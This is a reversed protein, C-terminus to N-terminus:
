KKAFSKYYGESRIYNCDLFSQKGWRIGRSLVGQFKPRGIFRRFSNSSNRDGFMVKVELVRALYGLTKSHLSNVIIAQSISSLSSNRSRGKKSEYYDEKRFYNYIRSYVDEQIGQLFNVEFIKRIPLLDQPAQSLAILEAWNWEAFTLNSAVFLRFWCFL